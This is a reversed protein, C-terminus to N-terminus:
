MPVSDVDLVFCTLTAEGGAAVDRLLPTMQATGLHRELFGEGAPLEAASIPMPQILCDSLWKTQPAALLTAFIKTWEAASRPSTGYNSGLYIAGQENLGVLAAYDDLSLM